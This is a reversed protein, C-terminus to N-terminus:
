LQTSITYQVKCACGKWQEVAAFTVSANCQAAHCSTGPLTHCAIVSQQQAGQTQVEHECSQVQQCTPLCGSKSLLSWCTAEPAKFPKRSKGPEPVGILVSVELLTLLVRTKDVQHRWHPSSTYYCCNRIDSLPNGEKKAIACVYHQRIVTGIMQCCCIGHM